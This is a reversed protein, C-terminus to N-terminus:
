GRLALATSRKSQFSNGEINAQAVSKVAPHFLQMRKRDELMKSERSKELAEALKLDEQQCTTTSNLKGKCRFFSNRTLTTQRYNKKVLKSVPEVELKLTKPKFSAVANASSIISKNPQPSSSPSKKNSITKNRPSSGMSSISLGKRSHSSISKTSANKAVAEDSLEGESENSSAEVITSPSKKRSAESTAGSSSAIDVFLPSKNALKSKEVRSATPTSPHYNSPLQLQKRRPVFDLLSPSPTGTDSVIPSTQPSVVKLKDAPVPVDLVKNKVPSSKASLSPLSNPSNHFNLCHSRKLKDSSRFPSNKMGSSKGLIPSSVEKHSNFRVPSTQGKIGVLKSQYSENCSAGFIDEDSDEVISSQDCLNNVEDNPELLMATEPICTKGGIPRSTAKTICQTAPALIVKSPSSVAAVCNSSNPSRFTNVSPNKSSLNKNTNASCDYLTQKNKSRTDNSSHSATSHEVSNSRSPAHNDPCNEKNDDSFIDSFKKKCPVCLSHHLKLLASNRHNTNEVVSDREKKM